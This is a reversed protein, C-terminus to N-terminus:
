SVGTTTTTSRIMGLQRATGLLATAAADDAGATASDTAMTVVPQRQRDM